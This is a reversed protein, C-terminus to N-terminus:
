RRATTSLSLHSCPAPKSTLMPLKCGWTRQAPSPGQGPSPLRGDQVLARRKSAPAESARAMKRASAEDPALAAEAYTFDRDFAQAAAQPAVQEFLAVSRRVVRTNIQAMAFPATWGGVAEDWRAASLDADEPRAGGPRRGGLLYPDALKEKGHAEESLIGSLVTGGSYGGKMAVYSGIRRAPAGFKAAVREAMWQVGLDSPISDFGSSPVLVVGNARAAAEYKAIMDAHWGPEGNIDVYHTGLRVCADVVPTGIRAFPGATSLVVRGQAVVADVESQEAASAVLFEPAHGGNASTLSDSLQRLKTTDRGVLAWRLAPRHLRIVEAFYRAVLQGTFGTSGWILVDYAPM